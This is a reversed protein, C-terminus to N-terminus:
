PMLDTSPLKTGGWEVVTFGTREFNEIQQPVLNFPIIASSVPQWLMFVRLLADPTPTIQMTSIKEDYLAGTLFQVLVFEHQIMQPAWFTIFDTQEKANLGMASLSNELYSIVSDTKIVAACIGDEEFKFDLEDSEAEWFLYPYEKGTETDRLGSSNVQIKWSEDYVPYTFTLVGKCSFKVEVNLEKESYLYIVPKDVEYIQDYYPFFNITVVHKSQFNYKWIVIEEYGAVFMYVTTDTADLLLKYNGQSDAVCSKKRDLTSITAGKLPIQKGDTTYNPGMVQGKMLCKGAPVESNYEDSVVVYNQRLISKRDGAFLFGSTCIALFLFVFKM